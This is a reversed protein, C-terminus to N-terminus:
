GVTYKREELRAKIAELSSIINNKELSTQNHFTINAISQIFSQNISQQSEGTAFRQPSGEPSIPAAVRASDLCSVSPPKSGRLVFVRALCAAFHIVTLGGELLMSAIYSM